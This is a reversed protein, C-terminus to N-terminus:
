ACASLGPPRPASRRWPLITSRSSRGRRPSPRRRRCPTVTSASLTSTATPRRGFESPQPQLLHADLDLAAEDRDVAAASSRRPCRRWRRRRRDASAPACPKARPRPPRRLSQPDRASISTRQMGATMKLSGSIATAPTVASSASFAPRLDLDAFEREDRQPTGDRVRVGIAEHLHDHIGAPVLHQPDVDHAVAGRVDDRLGRQGDLHARQGVVQPQRDM